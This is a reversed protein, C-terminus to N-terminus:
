VHENSGSMAKLREKEKRSMDELAQAELMKRREYAYFTMFHLPAPLYGRWQPSDPDRGHRALMMAIERGFVDQVSMLRYAINVWVAWEREVTRRLRDM